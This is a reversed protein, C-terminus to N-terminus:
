RPHNQKLFTKMREEALASAAPNYNEPETYHYFGHKAGEYIHVQADIRHKQLEKEFEHVDTMPIYEDATGYHCQLPTKISPAFDKMDPRPDSVSNAGAQVRPAAYFAVVAGVSDANLAAYMISLIGGGCFGLLGIRGPEVFSQQHLYTMAATIDSLLLKIYGYSMLFDRSLASIDPYRATPDLLLGVFGVQAMQAAANRMDEPLGANGHTVIVAPARVVDVPRTLFGNILADGNPFSTLAHVIAPDDLAKNPVANSASVDDKSNPCSSKGSCNICM